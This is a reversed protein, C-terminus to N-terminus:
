LGAARATALQHKSTVGPCPFARACSEHAESTRGRFVSPVAMQSTSGASWRAAIGPEMGWSWHREFSGRAWSGKMFAASEVNTRRCLRENALAPRSMFRWRLRRGPVWVQMESNGGELPAGTRAIALGEAAMGQRSPATPTSRSIIMLRVGIRHAPDVGQFGRIFRPASCLIM